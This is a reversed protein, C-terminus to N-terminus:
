AVRARDELPRTSRIAMIFDEKELRAGPMRVPLYTMSASGMDPLDVNGSPNDPTLSNLPDIEPSGSLTGIHPKYPLIVRERWYVWQGDLNIKRVM